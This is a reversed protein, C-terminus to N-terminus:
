RKNYQEADPNGPGFHKLMVLKETASRNTIEVGAQAKAATVFLEDRTMEGFRILTPTEVTHIGIQGWGQTLILGYAHADTVTVTRGPMITLEKASYWPTGYAVWVERYGLEAMAGEDRVPIPRVKNHAGFEPDVNKDWNLM